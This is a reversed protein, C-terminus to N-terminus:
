RAGAAPPASQDAPGAGPCWLSVDIDASAYLTRAGREAHVCRASANASFAGHLLRLSGEPSVEDECLLRTNIGKLQRSPVALSLRAAGDEDLLDSGAVARTDAVAVAVATVREGPGCDVTLEFQFELVTEDRLLPAAAEGENVQSLVLRDATAPSGALLLLMVLPPTARKM